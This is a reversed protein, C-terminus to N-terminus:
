GVFQVFQSLDMLLDAFGLNKRRGDFVAKTFLGFSGCIITLARRRITFRWRFAIAKADAVITLYKYIYKRSKESLKPSIRFDERYM